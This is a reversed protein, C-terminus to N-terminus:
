RRAEGQDNPLRVEYPYTARTALIGCPEFDVGMGRSAYYLTGIHHWQKGPPLRIKVTCGQWHNFRQHPWRRFCFWQAKGILLKQEETYANTSYKFDEIDALMEGTLKIKRACVDHIFHLVQWMKGFDEASGKRKEDIMINTKTQPKEHPTM